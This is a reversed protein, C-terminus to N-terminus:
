ESLFKKVQKCHICSSLMARTTGQCACCAFRYENLWVDTSFYDDSFINDVDKKINFVRTGSAMPEKEIVIWKNKM